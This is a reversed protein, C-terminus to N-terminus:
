SSRAFNALLQMGFRHSKEPHFQVGMLNGRQFGATFAGGHHAELLVDQADHCRMIYSHLFYFRAGEELGALLPSPRIPRVANWGMHPVKLPSSQEIPFREVHAQIWGLGAERGEQSESSMLQMGLCIGLVPVRERLAKDSLVEMMGSRGLNVMGADFAGVGPLIIKEAAALEAPTSVVRSACGIHKLMNAISGVNCVGYDLICIM